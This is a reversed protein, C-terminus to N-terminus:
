TVKLVKNARWSRKSYSRMTTLFVLVTFSEEKGKHEIEPTAQWTLICYNSAEEQDLGAQKKETAVRERGVRVDSGM